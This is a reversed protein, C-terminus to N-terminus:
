VIQVVCLVLRTCFSTMRGSQTKRRDVLWVRAARDSLVLRSNRYPWLMSFSRRLPSNPQHQSLALLMRTGSSCSAGFPILRHSRKCYISKRGDPNAVEQLHEEIGFYRLFEEFEAVRGLSVIHRCYAEVFLLQKRKPSGLSTSSVIYGGKGERDCSLHRSPCRVSPRRAALLVSAQWGSPFTSPGGQPDEFGNVRRM